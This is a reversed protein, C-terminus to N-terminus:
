VRSVMAYLHLKDYVHFNVRHGPFVVTFFSPLPHGAAHGDRMLVAEAVDPQQRMVAIGNLVAVCEPELYPSLSKDDIVRMYVMSFKGLLPEIEHRMCLLRGGVMNESGPLYCMM